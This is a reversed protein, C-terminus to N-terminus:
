MSESSNSHGNHLPKNLAATVSTSTAQGCQSSFIQRPATSEPEGVFTVRTALRIVVGAGSKGGPYLLGVAFSEDAGGVVTGSSNGGTTVISASTSVDTSSVSDVVGGTVTGSSKGATTTMSSSTSLDTSSVSDTAGGTVTGSSNGATTMM